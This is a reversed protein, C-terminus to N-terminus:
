STGPISRVAEVTFEAVNEPLDEFVITFPIASGPPVSHNMRDIGYSNNMAISIDESSLRNLKEDTMPNGAYAMRKMVLQGKDDLISGQVQIFSRSDPFENRVKGRIVFLSGLTESEIFNGAVESLVLRSVGTDPVEVASKFRGIPIYDAILEPAFFYFAAGVLGGLLVILLLLRTIRWLLSPGNKERKPSVGPVKSSDKEAEGRGGEGATKGRPRKRKRPDALEDKLFGEDIGSLFDELDDFDEVRRRGQAVGESDLSEMAKGDHPEGSVLAPPDSPLDITFIHKCMSCRVRTVGPKVVDDNLRFKTGCKECGIIM